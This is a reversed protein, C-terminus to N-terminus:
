MSWIVYFAYDMLGSFILQAGPLIGEPAWSAYDFFVHIAWGKAKKKVYDPTRM